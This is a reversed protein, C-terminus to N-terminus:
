SEIEFQKHWWEYVFILMCLMLSTILKIAQLCSFLLNGLQQYDIIAALTSDHIYHLSGLTKKQEFTSLGGIDVFIM